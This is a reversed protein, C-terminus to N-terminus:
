AQLIAFELSEDNEILQRAQEEQIVNMMSKLQTSHAFNPHTNRGKTIHNWLRRIRPNYRLNTRQHYSASLAKAVIKAQQAHSVTQQETYERRRGNIRLSPRSRM